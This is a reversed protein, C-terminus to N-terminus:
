NAVSCLRNPWIVVNGDTDGLPRILNLGSVNKSNKKM